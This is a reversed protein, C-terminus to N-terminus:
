RRRRGVYPVESQLDRMLKERQEKHEQLLYYALVSSSVIFTMASMIVVIFLVLTRM